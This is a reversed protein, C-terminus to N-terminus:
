VAAPEPTREIAEILPGLHKEYHRWRGVSSRYIQTRVQENSATPVPRSTEYFRLCREDWPLDLLELLRRAQGELDDVVDEYRVEILPVNVGQTWHTMLRQYDAYFEGLHGLDHSYEHGNAFYTMYCSLCTDLPDRTCHIIHCDPFLLLILGVYLFNHPMKDTVYTASGNLGSVTALYQEAMRNCQRVSISDLYGPYSEGETWAGRAANNAIRSLTALEGAGFVAPHSALIQEVLSTGSRPMGVIFVPRRSGHTARPLSHLTSPRHYAIRQDVQRRFTRPDYPRRTAENAAHAHGFAEEYRGAEDLLKAATFHLPPKEAPAVEPSDLLRLVLSLAKPKRKM